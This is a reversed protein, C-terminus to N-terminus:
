TSGNNVVIISDIIISQNHISKLLKKLLELRNYTVIVCAIEKQSEM